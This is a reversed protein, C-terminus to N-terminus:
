SAVLSWEKPMKKGPRLYKHALERHELLLRNPISGDAQTEKRLYKIIEAPSFGEHWLFAAVGAPLGLERPKALWYAAAIQFLKATKKAHMSGDAKRLGLYDLDLGPVPLTRHNQGSAFPQMAPFMMNQWDTPSILITTASDFYDKLPFAGFADGRFQKPVLTEAPVGKTGREFTILIEGQDDPYAFVGREAM